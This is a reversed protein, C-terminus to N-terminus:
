QVDPQTGTPTGVGPLCATVDPTGVPSAMAVASAVSSTVPSAIPSAVPSACPTGLTNTAVPTNDQAVGFTVGGLAVVVIVVVVLFSRM